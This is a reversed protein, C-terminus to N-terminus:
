IKQMKYIKNCCDIVWDGMKDAPAINLGFTSIEGDTYNKVQYEEAFYSFAKNRSDQQTDSCAPLFLMGFLIMAIVLNKKM